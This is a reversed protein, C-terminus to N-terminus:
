LDFKGAAGPIAPGILKELLATVVEAQYPRCSSLVVRTKGLSPWTGGIIWSETLKQYVQCGVGGKGDANPYHAVDPSGDPTMDIASIVELLVYILEAASPAGELTLGMVMEQDGLIHM